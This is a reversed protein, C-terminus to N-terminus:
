ITVLMSCPDLWCAFISLPPDSVLVYAGSNAAFLYADTYKQAAGNSILIHIHRRRAARWIRRPTQFPTPRRAEGQRWLFWAM